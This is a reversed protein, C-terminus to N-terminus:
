SLARCHRLLDVRPRALANSQEHPIPHKNTSNARCRLSPTSRSIKWPRLVKAASPKARTTLTLGSRALFRAPRATGSLPNPAFPSAGGKAFMSVAPSSGDSRACTAFLKPQAFSAAQGYPQRPLLAGDVIDERGNGAYPGTMDAMVGIRVVDDSIQAQAGTAILLATVASALLTKRNLQAM